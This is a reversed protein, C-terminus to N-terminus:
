HIVQKPKSSGERKLYQMACFTIIMGSALGEMFVATFISFGDIKQTSFTARIHELLPQDFYNLYFSIFLAFSVVTVLTIMAGQALGKLYFEQNFPVSRKYYSIGIFLGVSMIVFNFFRLELIQSLGLAKMLMFYGILALSTLLGTVIGIREVSASNTKM